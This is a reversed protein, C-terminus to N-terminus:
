KKVDKLLNKKDAFHDLIAEGAQECANKAKEIVNLFNDWKGYGLMAQLERARRREMGEYLYCAKEFRRLLEVIVERKM